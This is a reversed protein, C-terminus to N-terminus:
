NFPKYPCLKVFGLGKLKGYKLFVMKIRLSLGKPIKVKSFGLSAMLYQFLNKFVICQSLNQHWRHM